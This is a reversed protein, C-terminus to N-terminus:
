EFKALPGSWISNYRSITKKFSAVLDASGQQNIMEMAESYVSEDKELATWRYSQGMKPGDAINERPIANQRMIKKMGKTESRDLFKGLNALESEPELVLKEFQIFHFKSALDKRSHVVDIVWNCLHDVCMLAQDFTKAQSFREAWSSAFWPVKYGNCDVTLNIERVRRWRSPELFRSWHTVLHLPHRVVEIFKLRDGFAEIIPTAVPYICHTTINNAINQEDISKAIVEGDKSFLRSVFKLPTPHFRPGTEDRWRLNVERGILNYYQNRGAILQLLTVTANTNMAQLHSAACLYDYDPNYKFHEVRDFGGVLTSVLQKGSGWLGDVVIVDNSFDDFKKLPWQSL